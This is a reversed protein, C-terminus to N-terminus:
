GRAADVVDASSTATAPLAARKALMVAGAACAAGLPALLIVMGDAMTTLLPLASAGLGGWAAARVASLENVVRRREGLSLLVGFLAGSIAGAAAFYTAVLTVGEGGDFDEPRLLRLVVALAAGVAGWGIGFTAALGALGRLARLTGLM